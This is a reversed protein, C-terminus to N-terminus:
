ARLGRRAPGGHRKRRMGADELKQKRQRAPELSDNLAGAIGRGGEGESKPDVAWALTTVCLPPVEEGGAGGDEAESSRLM